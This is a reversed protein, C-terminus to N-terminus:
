LFVLWITPVEVDNVLLYKRSLVVKTSSTLVIERAIREYCSAIQLRLMVCLNKDIQTKDHGNSESAELGSAEM